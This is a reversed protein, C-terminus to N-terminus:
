KRRSVLKKRTAVHVNQTSIALPLSIGASKLLEMSRKRPCPISHFSVRNKVIIDIVCLNDLESLGEKVTIDLKVWYKYLARTIMYSLMVVFAHARTHKETRVNIPRVELHTTKMTRFAWEVFALDKYREHVVDKSAEQKSLDTKLVYCGDLKSEKDLASKDTKVQFNRGQTLLKLWNDIKLKQIREKIERKAISIKARPHEELYQNKKAVLKMVYEKKSQRNAAIEKARDPNRRFVYRVGEAEIEAIDQDFLEMQFMGNKLRSEIESKSIATIYSIKESDLGKIQTSKIMGRDGVFAVKECGFREEAKKIQSLFTCHDRVNGKFVEISVPDGKEDCLLGMLIQKKGRKKDRSYGFAAFANQEGELYSSTVDYLFITNVKNERRNNFLRQEIGDQQESLWTLNSYLDDENFTKKIGLVDCASHTEALRVASLRSGQDSVRAIIQWLALKGERTKGLAEEIGLRKATEYVVWVGGISSGEHTTIDDSVSALETLNGKHKLALRIAEIEERKCHSLNGITDHKVKGDKRYSTRLLARTYVRGNQYSESEDIYM